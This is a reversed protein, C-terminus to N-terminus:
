VGAQEAVSCNKREWPGIRSGCWSRGHWVGSTSRATPLSRPSRSSCVVQACTRGRCPAVAVTAEFEAGDSVQNEVGAHWRQQMRQLRAVSSGLGAEHVAVNRVLVRRSADLGALRKDKVTRGHVGVVLIVPSYSSGEGDTLCDTM